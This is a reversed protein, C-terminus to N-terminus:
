AEKTHDITAHRGNIAAKAETAAAEPANRGKHMSLRLRRVTPLVYEVFADKDPAYAGAAGDGGCTECDQDEGWCDPCAGLAAALIDNREILLMNEHKLQEYRAMVRKLRARREEVAVNEAQAPSQNRMFEAIMRLRPDSIGLQDLLDFGTEPPATASDGGGAGLLAEM